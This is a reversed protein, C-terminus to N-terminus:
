ARAAHEIRDVNQTLARRVVPKVLYGYFQQVEPVDSDLLPSRPCVVVDIGRATAYGIWYASCAMYRAAAARSDANTRYPTDSSVYDAGFILLEKVGIAIAYAVAYAVTHNLYSRAGPLALVSALPYAVATPCATRPISTIIPHGATEFWQTFSDNHGRYSQYDDMIFSLDVRIGRGVTNIGWVEDVNPGIFAHAAMLDVWESKSPGAAILAVREPIRGTPHNM